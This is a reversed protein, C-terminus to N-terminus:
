RHYRLRLKAMPSDIARMKYKAYACGVGDMEAGVKEGSRGAGSWSGGGAISGRCAADSDRAYLTVGLAEMGQLRTGRAVGECNRVDKLLPLGVEAELRATRWVECNLLCGGVAVAILVTEVV